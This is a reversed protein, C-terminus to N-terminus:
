RQVMQLGRQNKKLPPPLTTSTIELLVKSWIKGVEARHDFHSGAMKEQLSIANIIEKLVSFESSRFFRSEGPKKRRMDGGLIGFLTSVVVLDKRRTSGFWELPVQRGKSCTLETIHVEVIDESLLEYWDSTM